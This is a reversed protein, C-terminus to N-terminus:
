PRCRMSRTMTVCRECEWEDVDYLEDHDPCCRWAQDPQALTTGCTACDVVLWLANIM